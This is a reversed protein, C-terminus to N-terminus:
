GYYSGTHQRREPGFYNRGDNIHYVPPGKLVVGGLPWNPSHEVPSQVEMPLRVRPHWVFVGVSCNSSQPPDFTMNTPGVPRSDHMCLVSVAGSPASQTQALLGTSPPSTKATSRCKKWRTPPNSGPISSQPSSCISSDILTFCINKRWWGM